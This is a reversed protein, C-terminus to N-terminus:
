PGSLFDALARLVCGLGDTYPAAAQVGFMIVNGIAVEFMGM